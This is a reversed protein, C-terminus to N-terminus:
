QDGSLYCDKLKGGEETTILIRNGNDEMYLKMFNQQPKMVKSWSKVHGWSVSVSVLFCM